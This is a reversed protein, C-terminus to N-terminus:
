IANDRSGDNKINGLEDEGWDIDEDYTGTDDADDNIFDKQLLWGNLEYTDSILKKARKEWSLCLQNDWQKSFPDDFKYDNLIWRRKEEGQRMLHIFRTVQDEKWPDSILCDVEQYFSENLFARYYSARSSLENERDVPPEYSFEMSMRKEIRDAKQKEERSQFEAMDNENGQRILYISRLCSRYLSRTIYGADKLLELRECHLRENVKQVHLENKDTPQTTRADKATASELNDISHKQEIGSLFDREKQVMAASKSGSRRSTYTRISGIGWCSNQQSLTSIASRCLQAKM